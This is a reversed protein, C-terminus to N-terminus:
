FKDISHKESQCNKIFQEFQNFYKDVVSIAYQTWPVSGSTLDFSTQDISEFDKTALTHFRSLVYENILNHCWEVMQHRRREQKLSNQQIHAHFAEIEDYIAEITKPHFVSCTLVSSSWGPTKSHMLRLARRYERQTNKAASTLNGDCKTVAVIDACELIGRKIGQLEDGSAPNLLLLFLDVMDNVLVESQGVGVTEVLIRDFGAAECLSIAINTRKAVGGLSKRSPSPRIFASPNKSLNQM